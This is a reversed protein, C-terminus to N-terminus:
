TFSIKFINIRLFSNKWNCKLVLSSNGLDEVDTVSGKQRPFILEKAILVKGCWVGTVLALTEIHAGHCKNELAVKAFEEIIKNPIKYVIENEISTKRSRLNYRFSIKDKDQQHETM